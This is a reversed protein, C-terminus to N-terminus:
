IPKIVDLNIYNLGNLHITEVTGTITGDDSKFTDGNGENLYVTKGNADFEIVEINYFSTLRSAFTNFVLPDGLISFESGGNVSLRNVAGDRRVKITNVGMSLAGAGTGTGGGVVTLNVSGNADLAISNSATDDSLLVNFALSAVNITINLEGTITIDSDLDLSDSNSATLVRKYEKNLKPKSIVAIATNIATM